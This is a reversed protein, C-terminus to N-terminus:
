MLILNLFHVPFQFIFYFGLRWNSKGFGEQHSLSFFQGAEFFRSIEPAKQKFIQFENNIYNLFRFIWSFCRLYVHKCFDFINSSIEQLILDLYRNIHYKVHILYSVFDFNSFFIEALPSGDRGYGHFLYGLFTIEYLYMKWRFFM